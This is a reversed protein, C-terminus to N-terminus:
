EASVKMPRVDYLDQILATEMDRDLQKAREVYAPNLDV